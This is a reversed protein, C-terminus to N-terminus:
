LMVMVVTEITNATAMPHYFDKADNAIPEIKMSPHPVADGGETVM